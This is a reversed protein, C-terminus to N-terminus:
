QATQSNRSGRSAFQNAGGVPCRLPTNGSRWPSGLLMLGERERVHQLIQQDSCFLEELDELFGQFPKPEEYATAFVASGRACPSYSPAEVVPCSDWGPSSRGSLIMDALSRLQGPSTTDVLLSRLSFELVEDDPALTGSAKRSSEITGGTPAEAAEPAIKDGSLSHMSSPQVQIRGERLCTTANICCSPEVFSQTVRSTEKGKDTYEEEDRKAAKSRRKTMNLSTSLGERTRGLSVEVAAMADHRISREGELHFTKAESPCCFGSGSVSSLLQSLLMAASGQGTEATLATIANCSAFNSALPPLSEGLPDDWLSAGEFSSIVNSANVELRGAPPLPLALPARKRIKLPTPPAPDRLERKHGSPPEELRGGLVESNEHSSPATCLPPRIKQQRKTSLVRTLPAREVEYKQAIRLTKKLLGVVESILVLQDVTATKIKSIATVTPKLQPCANIKESIEKKLDGRGAEGLQVRWVRTILPGYPPAVGVSGGLLAKAKVDDKPPLDRLYAVLEDFSGIQEGIQNRQSLHM